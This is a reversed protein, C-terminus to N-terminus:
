LLESNTEFKFSQILISLRIRKNEFPLSITMNNPKSHKSMYNLKYKDPLLNDVRITKTISKITERYIIFLVRINVSENSENSEDVYLHGLDENDNYSFSHLHRNFMWNIGLATFKVNGYKLKNLHIWESGIIKINEFNSFLTETHEVKKGFLKINDPLMTLSLDNGYFEILPYLMEDISKNDFTTSEILNKLINIHDCHLDTDIPIIKQLVSIIINYDVMLFMLTHILKNNVDKNKIGYLHDIAVMLDTYTINEPLAISLSSVIESYEQQTEKNRLLMDIYRSKSCLIIRHVDIKKGDINLSLDYYKHNERFYRFDLISSM